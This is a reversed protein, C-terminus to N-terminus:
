RNMGRLDGVALAGSGLTDGVIEFLDESRGIWTYPM